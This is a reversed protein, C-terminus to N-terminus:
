ARRLRYGVSPENILLVPRAPDAELKQRLARIAVRLYDIQDEQAPGWAARLLYRHTLVEGVHKALEALVAFEKPTLHVEAGDRHVLRHLLDISVPGVVIPDADTGPELDVLNDVYRNLKAVEGAIEAVTAKEPTDSRRLARAAAAIANLRPKVDVGISSLLATRIKDRERAAAGLRAERDLRARDLALAAQDLLSELLPLQAEAVPPSGDERALGMAAAVTEGNRIPRFQWDALQVRTVGRGTPEGTRLTTAAAAMDSPALRAGEPATALLRPEGGGALLVANCDFLRSLQRTAVMAIEEENGSALLRRAFGAITANRAAHAAALRAQDRLGGALRSTVLAVVFLVLMTAVDAPDHILLSRYPVTFFYNYALASAAGAALAPGLGCQAGAALVAPIYLLVVTGSGWHRGILLGAVTSVAVFLLAVIYNLVPAREDAALSPLHDKDM